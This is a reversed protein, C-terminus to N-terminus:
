GNVLDANREQPTAKTTVKIHKACAINNRIAQMNSGIDPRAHVEITLDNGGGEKWNGGRGAFIDCIQQEDLNSVGTDRSVVFTVPIRAFEVYKYNGWKAIEEAKPLRAIRAVASEGKGVVEIGGDSGISAPIIVLRQP